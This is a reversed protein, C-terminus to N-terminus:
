YPLFARFMLTCRIGRASGSGTIFLQLSSTISRVLWCSFYHHLSPPFVVLSRSCCSSPLYLVCHTNCVAFGGSYNFPWNHSKPEHATKDAVWSSSLPRLHTISSLAQQQGLM